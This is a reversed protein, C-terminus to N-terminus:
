MLTKLMTLLRRLTREDIAPDCRLRTGDRLIVEIISSTEERALRASVESMAPAPCSPPTIDVPIFGKSPVISRPSLAKKWAFILNANMGHRRAIEAVSADGRSAEEVISVKLARPWVKRTRPRSPPPAVPSPESSASLDTEGRRRVIIGM